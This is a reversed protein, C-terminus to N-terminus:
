KKKKYWDGVEVYDMSRIEGELYFLEIIFFFFFPFSPFLFNEDRNIRIFVKDFLLAHM